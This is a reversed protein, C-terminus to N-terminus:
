IGSYRTELDVLWASQKFEHLLRDCYAVGDQHSLRPPSGYILVAELENLASDRDDNIVFHHYCNAKEIEHRASKMRRWRVSEEDTGRATLREWLTKIDPPLIFVSVAGKLVKRVSEWGQVDIELLPTRQRSQIASLEAKSTGYLNGHVNAWEVMDHNQIKDLFVAESVFHYDLGDTEGARIPRTTLSVSIEISPHKNVLLRNLTTKGGGSPASVVFVKELHASM